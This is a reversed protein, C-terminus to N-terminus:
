LKTAKSIYAIANMSADFLGTGVCAQHLVSHSQCYLFFSLGNRAEQQSCLFM